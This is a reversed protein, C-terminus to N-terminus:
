FKLEKDEESLAPELIKRIATDEIVDTKRIHNTKWFAQSSPGTRSDLATM